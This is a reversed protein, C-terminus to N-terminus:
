ITKLCALLADIEADSGVSIRLGDGWGPYVMFRILIGNAKLAEYIPRHPREPHTCWVFNAESDVADFGLTRLAATLRQRTAVVKARNDALWAQHHIAATAPAISLADCNYSDKVKRLQEIVQPQAVAFGFRLGALAYSKSFSRTVIAREDERVLDLCNTAAFDGYAEDVVLTCSLRAVFSRVRDPALLTGSPSNPNALLALRLGPGPAAFGDGLRWDRDYAFEECTAAQIGALTRYLIYGPSAMRVCEGAGVFTRMIITLLDDSGNGCIIWEPDVGLVEAARRRFVTALPDPYRALNRGAAAAAIARAVAPSPPYPNENTNLKIWKGEQPQEGPVYGALTAVDARVFRAAPVPASTTAM